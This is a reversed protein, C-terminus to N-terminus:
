TPIIFSGVLDSNVANGASPLDVVKLKGTMEFNGESNESDKYTFGGVSNIQHGFSEDYDFATDNGIPNQHNKDYDLTISHEHGVDGNSWTVNTGKSITASSPVFSQDILRSDDGEGPKHHGENRIL